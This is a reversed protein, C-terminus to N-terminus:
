SNERELAYRALTAIQALHPHFHIWQGTHPSFNTRFWQDMEKNGTDISLDVQACERDFTADDVISDDLLEYAYAWVAVRVRRKREELATDESSMDNFQELKFKSHTSNLLAGPHL